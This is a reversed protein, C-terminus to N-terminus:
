YWSRDPPPPRPVIVVSRGFPLRGNTISISLDFKFSTAQLWNEIKGVTRVVRRRVVRMLEPHVVVCRRVFVWFSLWHEPHVVACTHVFVWFVVLVRPAFTGCFLWLFLRAEPQM